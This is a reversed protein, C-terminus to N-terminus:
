RPVVTGVGRSAPLATIQRALAGRRARRAQLRQRFTPHAPAPQAVWHVPTATPRATPATLTPTM